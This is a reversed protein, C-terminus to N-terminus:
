TDITKFLYIDYLNDEGVVIPYFKFDIFSVYDFCKYQMFVSMYVLSTSYFTWFYVRVYITLHNKVLTDLGNLPSLVTKEM